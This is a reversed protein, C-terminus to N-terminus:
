ELLYILIPKSVINMVNVLISYKPVHVYWHVMEFHVM